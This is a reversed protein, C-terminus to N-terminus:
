GGLVATIARKINVKGYGCYDSHGNFDYTCQAPDIKDANSELIRIVEERTLDSNAELLMAIVATVVPAAASTGVFGESSDYEIYNGMDAGAYGMVDLTALGMYEGGPAVLDLQPGYNSYATRQNYINTASVALVEDIGSEDNGIPDGIEDIGGNGSAFVIITGKGNRGNQALDIIASKVADSVNGTGWSCNVVDAGWEKAKQFAEVIVSDSITSNFPLRIFYLEAGPAIGSIGVSNSSAGILGTVATGHTESNNRPHVDATKTELDYTKVVAGQLDEHDTDLADDIVVVKVGRGTYAQTSWPHIHADANINYTHYFTDDKIFYWQQPLLPNDSYPAVSRGTTEVSSDTSTTPETSAISSVLSEGECGQFIFLALFITIMSVNRM